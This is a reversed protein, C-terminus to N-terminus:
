RQGLGARGLAGDPPLPHVRRAPDRHVGV